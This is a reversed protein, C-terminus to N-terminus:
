SLFNNDISTNTDICCCFTALFLDLKLAYNYVFLCAFFMSKKFVLVSNKPFSNKIIINPYYIM